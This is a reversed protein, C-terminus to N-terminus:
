PDQRRCSLCLCQRPIRGVNSQRRQCRPTAQREHSQMDHSAVTSARATSRKWGFPTLERKQRVLRVRSTSDAAITDAVADKNTLLRALTNASARSASNRQGKGSDLSPYAPNHVRRGSAATGHQLHRDLHDIRHRGTNHHRRLLQRQQQGAALLSIARPHGTESPQLCGGGAWPAYSQLWGSCYSTDSSTRRACM